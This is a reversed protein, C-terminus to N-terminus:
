ALTVNILPIVASDMLERTAMIFVKISKGRLNRPELTSPKSNTIIM